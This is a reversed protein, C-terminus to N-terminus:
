EYSYLHSYRYYGNESLSGQLLLQRRSRYSPNTRDKSKTQSWAFQQTKVKEISERCLCSSLYDSIAEAFALSNRRGISYPKTKKGSFHFRSCRLNSQPSSQWGPYGDPKAKGRKPLSGSHPSLFLSKYQFWLSPFGESYGLGKTRGFSHSKRQASSQKRQGPIHNHHVYLYILM